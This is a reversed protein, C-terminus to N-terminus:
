ETFNTFVHGDYRYLGTNRTGVWINGAKDELICFAYYNGLGDKLSFNTFTKGDYRWIGDKSENSNRQEEGNFWINGAKDECVPLGIGEKETFKTFATGDYRWVGQHRGGSWLIGNKDEFIYRIWGDGGPKFSVISKGDYRCLGEEGPPMGSAFWINGNKDELIADVMKLHLGEKNIVGDNQLFHTFTIGNYCYVGNSTGFWIKGSRGQLMSWVENKAFPDIKSTDPTLPLRNFLPIPVPTFTKGDYRCIGADTGLWINGAKDELICWVRNSNLGDKATFNTFSRGDYRYVGDGTTGFWLNGAKDQLGCHINDAAEQYQNTFHNKILKSPGPSTKQKDADDKPLDTRVQGKCSTIFLLLVLLFPIHM